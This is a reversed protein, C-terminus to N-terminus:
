VLTNPSHVQIRGCPTAPHRNAARAVNRNLARAAHGNPRAGQVEPGPAMRNGPQPLGRHSFLKIEFRRSLGSAGAGAYIM